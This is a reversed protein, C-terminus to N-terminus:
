INRKMGKESGKGQTWINEGATNNILLIQQFNGRWIRSIPRPPYLTLSYLLSSNISCTTYVSKGTQM